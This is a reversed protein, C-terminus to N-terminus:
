MLKKLAAKAASRLRIDASKRYATLLEIDEKEGHAGLTAIASMKLMVPTKKDKLVTKALAAAGPHKYKAAIQLAPIRVLDATEPDSALKYAEEAIQSCVFGPQDSLGDIAIIAPAAINKKEELATFLTARVAQKNEYTDIQRYCQGLFQICYDRWTLDLNEKEYYMATLHLPFEQNAPIQRMLAIAVQNKVSNLKIPELKDESTRKHLFHLLARQEPQTLNEDLADAAKMRDIYTFNEDLGAIGKISDPVPVSTYTVTEYKPLGFSNVEDEIIRQDTFIFQINGYELRIRNILADIDPGATEPTKLSIRNQRITADATKGAPKEPPRILSYTDSRYFVLALVILVISLSLMIRYKAIFKLFAKRM